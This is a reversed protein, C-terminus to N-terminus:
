TQVRSLARQELIVDQIRKLRYYIEMGIHLNPSFRDSIQSFLMGKTQIGHGYRYYSQLARTALSVRHYNLRIQCTLVQSITWMSFHKLVFTWLM